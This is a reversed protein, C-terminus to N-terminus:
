RMELSKSIIDMLKQNELTLDDSSIKYPKFFEIRLNNFLRFKGKITFPVILSDTDHAMKVAGIKFPLIVDSSKNVTGEPFIGILAGKNLFEKAKRLADKDHISRNVPIIGMNKFIIKKFGKNLSDKALFHVTRGTCSMVLLPDFFKTHNGALVVSGSKPINDLGIYKPRFVINIFVKIIPRTIRYLLPEKM